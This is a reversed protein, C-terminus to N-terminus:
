RSVITVVPLHLICRYHSSHSYLYEYAFPPPAKSGSGEMERSRGGHLGITFEIM